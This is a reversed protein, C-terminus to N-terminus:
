EEDLEINFYNLFLQKVEDFVGEDFINRNIAFVTSREVNRYLAYSVPGFINRFLLDYIRFRQTNKKEEGESSAGIAVFSANSVEEKIALMIKVCTGVIRIMDHRGTEISFRDDNHAHSNPYFKVAFVKHNYEEVDVIYLIGNKGKFRYMRKVRFQDDLRPKVNQIFRFSYSSDFM